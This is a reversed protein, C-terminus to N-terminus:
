NLGWREYMQESGVVGGKEFVDDSHYLPALSVLKPEWRMLSPDELVSDLALSTHDSLTADLSLIHCITLSLLFGSGDPDDWWAVLFRAQSSARQGGFQGIPGSRWSGHPPSASSLELMNESAALINQTHGPIDEFM